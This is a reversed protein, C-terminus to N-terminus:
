LGLQVGESRLNLGNDGDLLSKEVFEIQNLRYALRFSFNRSFKRDIGAHLNYYQKINGGGLNATDGRFYFAFKDNLMLKVAGGLM